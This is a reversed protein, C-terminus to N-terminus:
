DPKKITFSIKNKFSKRFLYLIFFYLSLSSIVSIGFLADTWSNFYGIMLVFMMLLFPIVYAFIVAYIGNKETIFIIVKDNIKYNGTNDIINVIKEKSEAMSCVSKTRCSSCASESVILVKIESGNIDQVIGKHSIINNHM